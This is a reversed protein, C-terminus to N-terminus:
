AGEGYEEVFTLATPASQDRLEAARWLSRRGVNLLEAASDQSVAGIPASKSPRGEPLNALRAAVM